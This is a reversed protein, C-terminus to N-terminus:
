PKSVVGNITLSWNQLIGGHPGVGGDIELMWNGEAQLGKLGSLAQIPRFTGTYPATGAPTPQPASDSSTTTAFSQGNDGAKQYLIVSQGGPAILKITLDGDAPYVLSLNVQLDNVLLSPDGTMAITSTTPTNPATNPPPIFQPLDVASQSLTTDVVP